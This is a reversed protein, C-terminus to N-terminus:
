LGEGMDMDYGVAGGGWIWTMVYLGERWIWTM